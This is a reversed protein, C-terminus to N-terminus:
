KKNCLLNLNREFINKGGCVSSVSYYRMLVGDNGSCYFSYTFQYRFTLTCNNVVKTVSGSEKTM